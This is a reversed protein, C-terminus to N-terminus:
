GRSRDPAPSAPRLSLGQRHRGQAHSSRNPRGEAAIQNAFEHVAERLSIKGARGGMAADLGERDWRPTRQGLHRSPPPLAGSKVRHLFLDARISLYAAAADLDLWRATDTM